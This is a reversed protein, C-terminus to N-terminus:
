PSWTTSEVNHSRADEALPSLAIQARPRRFVDIIEIQVLRTALLAEAVCAITAPWMRRTVVTKSFASVFALFVSSIWERTSTLAWACNKVEETRLMDTSALTRASGASISPESFTVSSCRAESDSHPLLLPITIAGPSVRDM